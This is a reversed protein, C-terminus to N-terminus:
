VATRQQQVGSQRGGGRLKSKKNATKNLKGPSSHADLKSVCVKVISYVM